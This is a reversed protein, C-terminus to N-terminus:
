RIVRTEEGMTGERRSREFYVRGRGPLNQYLIRHVNISKKIFEIFFWLFNMSFRHFRDRLSRPYSPEGEVIYYNEFFFMKSTNKKSKHLWFWRNQCNTTLNQGMKSIALRRKNGCWLLGCCPPRGFITGLIGSIGIRPTPPAAAGGVCRGCNGQPAGGRM